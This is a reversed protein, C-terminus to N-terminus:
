GVGSWGDMRQLINTLLKSTISGNKSCTVFTPVEIGNYICTPGFTFVRDVGNRHLDKMEEIETELGQVDENSVDEGDKSL